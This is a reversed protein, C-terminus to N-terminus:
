WILRDVPLNWRALEAEGELLEALPDPLMGFEVIAVVAAEVVVDPLVCVAHREESFVNGFLLRCPHPQDVCFALFDPNRGHKDVGREHEEILIVPLNRM